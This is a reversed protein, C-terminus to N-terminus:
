HTVEKCQMELLIQDEHIDNLYEITYLKGRFLIVMDRTITVSPYRITFNTLAKEFDSGNAIITQGRTTKTQAHCALVLAGASLSEFGGNSTWVGQHIEIKKSFQGANIM